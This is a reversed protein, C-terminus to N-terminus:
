SAAVRAATGGAAVCYTTRCAVIKVLLHHPNVACALRRSLRELEVLWRKAAAIGAPDRSHQLFRECALLDAALQARDNM